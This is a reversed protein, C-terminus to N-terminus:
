PTSTSDPRLDLVILVLVLVNAAKRAGSPLQEYRMAQQVFTTSLTAHPPNSEKARMGDHKEPGHDRCIPCGQPPSLRASHQISIPGQFLQYLPLPPCASVSTAVIQLRNRYAPHTPFHPVYASRFTDSEHLVKHSPTTFTSGHRTNHLQTNPYDNGCWTSQLCAHELGVEPCHLSQVARIQNSEIIKKEKNSTSYTSKKIESTEATLHSIHRANHMDLDEASRVAEGPRRMDYPSITKANKSRSGHRITRLRGCATTANSYVIIVVGLLQKLSLNQLPLFNVKQQVPSDLRSHQPLTRHFLQLLVAATTTQTANNRRAKKPPAGNGGTDAVLPVRTPRGRRPPRQQALTKAGEANAQLM